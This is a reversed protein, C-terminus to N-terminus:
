TTADTFTLRAVIEDDDVEGTPVFGRALYFPEPGGPGPHWSVLLSEHGEARLRAVLLALVRDGIGRRQHRRDILLRWLYPVPHRDTVETLMVFGALEGDAEVARMWPVVPAGNESGPFLADAYSNRVPSVFREQNPQTRLAMVARATAPTIEVLRVDQPRQRPRATWAAHQVETLGYRADDSWEGGAWVAAVATGEHEFGLSEIVRASAVNRPDISAEIRHVDLLDFLRDVVAGVAETALGRGQAAPALTYGITAVRGDDSLGVAVDGVLSGEHEVALQIWAGREPADMAAMEDVFRVADALAFPADWSQFRAVDPDSRYAAFTAADTARFARVHVRPTTFPLFPAM